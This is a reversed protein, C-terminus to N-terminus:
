SLLMAESINWKLTSKFDYSLRLFHTTIKWGGRINNQTYDALPLSADIDIVDQGRWIAVLVNQM